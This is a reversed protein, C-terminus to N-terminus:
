SKAPFTGPTKMYWLRAGGITVWIALPIYSIVITSELASHGPGLFHHQLLALEIAIRVFIPHDGTAARLHHILTRIEHQEVDFFVSVMRDLYFDALRHSDEKHIRTRVAGGALVNDTSDETRDISASVRSVDLTVDLGEFDTGAIPRDELRNMFSAVVWKRIVGDRACIFSRDADEM